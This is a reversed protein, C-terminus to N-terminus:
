FILYFEALIDYLTLLLNLFLQSFFINKHLDQFIFCKANMVMM